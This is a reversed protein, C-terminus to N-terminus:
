YGSRLVTQTIYARFTFVTGKSVLYLFTKVSFFLNSVPLFIVIQHNQHLYIKPPPPDGELEKRQTHTYTHINRDVWMVNRFQCKSM